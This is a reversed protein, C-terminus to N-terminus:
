SPEEEDEGDLAPLAEGLKAELTRLTFPKQLFRVGEELVGHHAIVDATYGSMFIRRIHPYISLIRKALARGNMEPMVVDTLLLHIDGIHEEALRVAEGPTVASLVEYGLTKLMTTTLRLLAADDEVLLVTEHHSKSAVAAPARMAAQESKGLHRPLYIEFTSGVGEESYVSIMGNNQKVAGYVTALGLGTGEGVGKTTFFPEFLHDITLQDMGCGSDSVSLMVYDGPVYGPHTDCFVTDFSTNRTSIVVKGVSKVADRANVCLNALIQDIQSPDMKVDWLQPGPMWVLEINEGILRRLMKLMGTVTENLDLVKPCITQRRAFALLQRTLDASRQAAKQIEKLDAHLPQDPAVHDLAMETQGLIVSLMNNFDHAVGGALRGVSEMKQAQVLQAQLREREEEAQKRETIDSHTGVMRSIRGDADRAVVKGRGLIWRYDGDKARMRFEVAYFPSRGEMHEQIQHETPAVDDPHLLGRWSEYNAPFEAPCYGLMTYYRPSFYASGELVNWDWFGDNSADIVLSLQEEGHRLAEENQKRKTIDQFTGIVSINQGEGVPLLGRVETWLRKGSTTTLGCEIAFPESTALCRSISEMLPPISEADYYVLGESLTPQQDKPVGVIEYVGDTWKLYGTEPNAKWGGLRAIRQIEKSFLESERLAQEARTRETIDLGIAQYHTINGGEDFFARNTWQYFLEVGAASVYRQEHREVPQEPTLAQIAGLVEARSEPPVWEIFRSGVMEQPSMGHHAALAENVYTLTTDPLFATIFVPMDEALRRYSEESKQLKELLRERDGAARALLISNYSLSSMLNAFKTYFAMVHAVTERSWRPVRELAALYAEENFGYKRAQLRFIDFDPVEDEYFFQGLFLNGLHKGGVMIPTAIDWMNNKCRYAKFTGPTVGSALLTDSETCNRCADPHVRHFKTCIDQWGTAALVRGKADVIGVGIHTVNYFDEMVSQIVQPDIIDALELAGIDGEPSLIADLKARVRGESDRLIEEAQKRETIDLMAGVIGRVNGDSDQLASKHFVFHRRMGNSDQVEAEYSQPQKETLLLSDAEHYRLALDSPSVDFATKGIIAEKDLGLFESFARNCGTYVGAASKYFVPAAISDIIADLLDENDRLAQEAQKRRTIDHMTVMVQHPRSAGPRFEPIANVDLWVRQGTQPNLIGSTVGMVPKGTRLAMMSPHESGPLPSGDERVVDWQPDESTRGLFEDRSLGFIRLAAPNVDVLAGDARQLFAGQQMNEFLARYQAESANLESVTRRQILGVALNSALREFLAIDAATFRERRMDNFQLLGLTECGHRIPVLAVSEYGEGNCRNRTRTQRDAETTSALLDTTCNSWFSGNETFFPLAPNYRGCIVNGCMCEIVPNGQADRLLQGDLDKACLANEAEIFEPPFGRTEFYPFDDGEKLRIGVAECGSWERMLHTVNRLLEHLGNSESILRLLAIMIEREAESRKRQTIDRTFAIFCGGQEPIYSCSVDIDLIRGDKCRHKAEFRAEGQAILQALHRRCDDPTEMADIDWVALGAMEEPTYGLIEAGAPNVEVLYGERDIVWFGDIASKLIEVGLSGSARVIVGAPSIMENDRKM